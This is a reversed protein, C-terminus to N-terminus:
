AKRKKLIGCYFIMYMIFSFVIMVACVISIIGAITEPIGPFIILIGISIYLIVTCLKGYWKASNVEDKVKVIVIGMVSVIIEKVAFLIVLGLMWSYKITLCIIMTGLTLKDAIPDLIKGFDSVMDFRRAIKGDAVDSLGSIALLAIALYYNKLGCYTWIIFPILILRFLSLLNPITLIQEKKFLRHM